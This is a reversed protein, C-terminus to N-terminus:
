KVRDACKPLIKLDKLPQINVLVGYDLNVVWGSDRVEVVKKEFWIADDSLKTKTSRPKILDQLRKEFQILEDLDIEDDLFKKQMAKIMRSNGSARAEELQAQVRSKEQGLQIKLPNVYRVLLKPITDGSIKKYNIICSFIGSSSRNKGCRASTLHWYIPRKEYIAMHYEFFDKEIWEQISKGLITQITDLNKKGDKFYEGIKDEIRLSLSESNNKLIPFIENNESEIIMKIFYSLLENILDQNSKYITDQIKTDEANTSNDGQQTSSDDDDNEIEITSSRKFNNIEKEGFGYLDYVKKDILEQLNHIKLYFTDIKNRIMSIIQLLPMEEFQLLEQYYKEMSDSFHFYNGLPHHNIPKLIKYTKLYKSTNQIIWPAIFYPSNEKAISLDRKLFFIEKSWSRINENKWLKPMRLKALSGNTRNHNLPDITNLLIEIFQSNLIGLLCFIADDDNEEPDLFIGSAADRFLFDPPLIHANLSKSSVIMPWSIGNRKKRDFYYGRNRLVAGNEELKKGDNNWDLITNIDAYYQENLGKGAYCKWRIGIQESLIEWYFRMFQIDDSTSLGKVCDAIKEGETSGSRDKDLFPFDILLDLIELDLWYIFPSGPTKNFDKLERFYWDKELNSLSKLFYKEKEDQDDIRTLNIFMMEPEKIKITKRLCSAITRTTAEDLVGTGLDINIESHLNNRLFFERLYQFYINFLHSRQSLMGIFGNKKLLKFSQIIFAEYYDHYPYYYGKGDEKKLFHKKEVYDKTFIPMKGYPPNMLIIDYNQMLLTLLGLSKETEHYFILDSVNRTDLAEKEFDIITKQIEKFTTTKGNEVPIPFLKTQKGEVKKIKRKEIIKQNLIEFEKKINLLSGLAYTSDLDDLLLAVFQKLEDDSSFKEILDSKKKTDVIRADACVLNIIKFQFKPDYTKAKLYLNIAAIQIARLDIDIGFLNNELILRCIEDIDMKPYSIQYLQVLFEFSYILFHGSGCAPDLIKINKIDNIDRKEFFEYNVYYQWKEILRSDPYMEKWLRGVTNQVLTKVIWKPTYFQNILPIDDPNPKKKEKTPKAKFEERSKSNFFQYIWGLIEDSKWDEETIEESLIHVIEKTIKYDPSIIAYENQEGFLNGIESRLIYFGQAITEKLIKEENWDPNQEFIKWATLSKGGYKDRPIIVEEILSRVEMARLASIRNLFTFACHTIYRQMAHKEDLGGKQQTVIAADCWLRIKKEAENLHFLKEYPINAQEQEVFLGYKKLQDTFEKELIGRCENVTPKIVRNRRERDM